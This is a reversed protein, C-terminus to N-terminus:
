QTKPQQLKMLGTAYSQLQNWLGQGQGDLFVHLEASTQRQVVEVVHANHVLVLNTTKKQIRSRISFMMSPAVAVGQPDSSRMNLTCCGGRPPRIVKHQPHM